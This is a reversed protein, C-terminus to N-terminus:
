RNCIRDNARELHCLITLTFCFNNQELVSKMVVSSCVASVYLAVVSEPYLADKGKWGECTIIGKSTSLDIEITDIFRISILNVRAQASM